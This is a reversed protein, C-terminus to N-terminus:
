EPVVLRRAARDFWLPIADESFDFAEYIRRVLRYGCWDPSTSIEEFTLSLPDWVLDDSQDYRHPTNLAIVRAPTGGRLIWGRVGLLVLDAIVEASPQLKNAYIINALRFASVPFELLALPWLEREQGARGLSLNELSAEFALGGDRRIEVRRSVEPATVLRDPLLLASRESNVFNWGGLRNESLSPDVLHDRYRGPDIEIESVPELRLWFLGCGGRELIAEKEKIVKSNARTLDRNFRYGTSLIEDRTMPRSRDGVRVVFHRGDKKLFAYPKKAAEPAVAICLVAGAGQDLIELNVERGKLSPEITDVLYDKLRSNEAESNPIAEVMVARGGEERLGVWVEGGEANLMAVVQRAIKEPDKLSDAGKFELRSSEKKGLPVRAKL